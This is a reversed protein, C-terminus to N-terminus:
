AKEMRVAWRTLIERLEDPLRAFCEAKLEEPVGYCAEAISGAMAAITDSDGGISVATRIVDEFDAGDLFAIISEPVSEQCTEVHHYAPRIEDCTRNLDYGFQETVYSKIEAKSKGNRALYIASAIAQAGKIGEPHDHSM